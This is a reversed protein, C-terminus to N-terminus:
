RVVWMLFLNFVGVIFCGVTFSLLVDDFLDDKM